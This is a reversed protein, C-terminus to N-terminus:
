AFSLSYFIKRFRFVRRDFIVGQELSASRLFLERRFPSLSVGAFCCCPLAQAVLARCSQDTLTAM